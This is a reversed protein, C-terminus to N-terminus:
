VVAKEQITIGEYLEPYNNKEWLIFSHFAEDTPADEILNTHKDMFENIHNVEEDLFQTMRVQEMLTDTWKTIGIGVLWSEFEMLQEYTVKGPDCGFTLSDSNLDKIAMARGGTFQITRCETTHLLGRQMGEICVHDTKRAM